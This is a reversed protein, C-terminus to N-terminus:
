DDRRAGIQQCFWDLAYLCWQFRYTYVNCNPIDCGDWADTEYMERLLEGESLDSLDQDLLDRLRDMMGETSASMEVDDEEAYEAELEKLAEQICEEAVEWSFKEVEGAVVKEAAYSPSGCASAIWGIMDDTRHFVFEGMDGCYCLFGPWTVIDFCCVFTGPKQCRYHRYLGHRKIPKVKHEKISVDFQQRVKQAEKERFDM